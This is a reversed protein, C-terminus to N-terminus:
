SIGTAFDNTVMEESNQYWALLGAGGAIEDTARLVLQPEIRHAADLAVVACHGATRQKNICGEPTLHLRFPLIAAKRSEM